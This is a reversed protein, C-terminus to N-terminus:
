PRFVVLYIIAFLVLVPLENIVRYFKHDRTRRGLRVARGHFGLWFHYGVLLLVLGIKAHLWGSEKFFAMGYETVLIAGFLVTFVCFPTTFRYLKREMVCFREHGTVDDPSVSAHYVFLRPLYFIGAFWSVVSIIHLTKWWLLRLDSFAFVLGVIVAGVVAAMVFPKAAAVLSDANSSSIHDSTDSM